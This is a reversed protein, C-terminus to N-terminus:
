TPGRRAWGTASGAHCRWPNPSWSAPPQTTRSSTPSGARPTFLEPASLARRPRSDLAEDLWRRGEALNGALWLQEMATALRLLRRADLARAHVLAARLNDLDATLPALGADSGSTTKQHHVRETVELFHDLHRQRIAAEDSSAALRGAAYDRLSELFRFRSASGAAPDSVVLSKAVLQCLVDFVEHRPLADDACVAEATALSWGGAFVALRRFLARERGDLLDHSWELTARLTQHRPDGARSGATLLAFRDDLRLLIEELSLVPVRAAALEIALPNGDLRRCLEAVAGANDARLAFGPQRTAARDAFLRVAAYAELRGPVSFRVAGPVSLGPVPWSVEGAVNLPERSTALIRVGECASLLGHALEACAGLLHECNDLVVLTRAPRFRRCLSDLAPGPEEPLGVADAVSTAVLSPDALAALEVLWVGEPFEGAVTRALHLALRTKGTGGPGTLTVLRAHRLAATLEELERERGLFSTLDLPLNHSPRRELPGPAGALAADQDLIRKHLQRLSVGPEMGMEEVLMTRTADYVRSADAQRGSRYLAAMLQGALGERLPHAAVSAELEAVVEAHRGLAMDAEIRWELAQLRLEELRAGEPQAFAEFVFEALASGRWLGLAEALLSAAAAPDAALADRGRDVLHEFRAIDLGDVDVRLLYGPPRTVLVADDGTSARGPDLSPRLSAVHAQLANAANAPPHEGWLADILRDSSVVENAHLLLMALLARRKAGAVPVPQGQRWVELPGLLRFEVM